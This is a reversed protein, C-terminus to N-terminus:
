AHSRGQKKHNVSVEESFSHTQSAIQRSVTLFAHNIFRRVVNPGDVVTTVAPLIQVFCCKRMTNRKRLEVVSYGSGYPLVVDFSWVSQFDSRDHHLM